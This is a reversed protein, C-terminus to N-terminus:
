TLQHWIEPKLLQHITTNRVLIYFFMTQCPSQLIKGAEIKGQM